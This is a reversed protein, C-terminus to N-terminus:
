ERGKWRWTTVKVPALFEGARDQWRLSVVIRKVDPEASPATVEIKLEAGPLRDRVTQSLQPRAFAMHYGDGPWHAGATWSPPLSDVSPRIATRRTPRYIGKVDMGSSGKVDMGSSGKADMGSSGKADVGAPIPSTVVTTQPTLESWRRATVRELVNGVEIAALQRQDAVRRQAATAALLQLCVLMLTGLVAGAVVLEMLAIGRRLRDREGYARRRAANSAAIGAYTGSCLPSVGSRRNGARSRTIGRRVM